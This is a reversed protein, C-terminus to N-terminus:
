NKLFIPEEKWSGRECDCVCVCVCLFIYVCMYTCACVFVCRAEMFINVGCEEKIKGFNQGGKEIVASVSVFVCVCLFIYMCVGIYVCMLVHM